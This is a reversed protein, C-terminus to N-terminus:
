HGRSRACLKSAQYLYEPGAQDPLSHEDDEDDLPEERGNRRLVDIAENIAIRYIWSFFRYRPDYEDLREVIRLYVSQAVDNADAASGLVRYAANYIPKQYRAVLTAFSGRDGQRYRALLAQDPEGSEIVRSPM